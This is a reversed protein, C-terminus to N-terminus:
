GNTAEKAIRRCRITVGPNSKHQSNISVEVLEVSWEVGADLEPSLREAIGRGIHGIPGIPWSHVAIANSDYENLPERILSIEDDLNLSMVNAPYSPVFTVGVVNTTFDDGLPRTISVDTNTM